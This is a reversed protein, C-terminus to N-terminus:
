WLDFISILQGAIVFQNSQDFLTLGQLSNQEAINLNLRVITDHFSSPIGIQFMKIETVVGVHSPDVGAKEGEIQGSIAEVRGEVRGQRGALQLGEVNGVVFYGVVEEFGEEFGGVEGGEPVEVEVVDAELAGDIGKLM